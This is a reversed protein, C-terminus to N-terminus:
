STTGRPHARLKARPRISRLTLIDESEMHAKQLMRGGDSSKM